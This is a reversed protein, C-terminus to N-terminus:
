VLVGQRRQAQLAKWAPDQAADEIWALAYAVPGGATEIAEIAVFHSKYGTETIPLPERPPQVAEIQLHTPHYQSPPRGLWNREFRICITIGSWVIEHKEIQSDEVTNEQTTPDTSTNATTM